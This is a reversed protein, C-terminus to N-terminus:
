EECRHTDKTYWTLPAHCHACTWEQKQHELWNPFGDNQIEYLNSDVTRLHPLKNFLGRLRLVWKWIRFRFCPFKSCETCNDIDPKQRACRRLPCTRCGAFVVDSHCGYCVIPSDKPVPLHDQMAAPLDEWGPTIGHEQGQKFLHMIDCAGCYIGCYSGEQFDPM